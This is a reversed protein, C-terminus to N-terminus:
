HERLPHLNNIKISIHEIASESFMQLRPEAPRPAFREDSKLDKM